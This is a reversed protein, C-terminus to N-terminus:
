TQQSLQQWPRMDCTLVEPIVSLVPPLVLALKQPSNNEFFAFNERKIDCLPQLHLSQVDGRM